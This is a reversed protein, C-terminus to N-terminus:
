LEIWDELDMVIIHDIVELTYLLIYIYYIYISRDINYIHYIWLESYLFGCSLLRFINSYNGYIIYILNNKM